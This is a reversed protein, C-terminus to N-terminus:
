RASGQAQQGKTEQQEQRNGESSRRAPLSDGAAVTAQAAGQGWCGVSWEREFGQEGQKHDAVDTTCSRALGAVVKCEQTENASRGPDEVGSGM